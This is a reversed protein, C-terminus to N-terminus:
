LPCSNRLLDKEDIKSSSSLDSLFFDIFADKAYPNAINM